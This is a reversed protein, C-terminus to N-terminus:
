ISEMKLLLIEVEVLKDLALIVLAKVPVDLQDLADLHQPTEKDFILLLFRLFSKRARYYVAFLKTQKNEKKGFM